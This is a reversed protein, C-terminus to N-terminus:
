PCCAVHCCRIEAQTPLALAYSLAQVRTLVPGKSIGPDGRNQYRTTARVKNLPIQVGDLPGPMSVQSGRTILPGPQAYM